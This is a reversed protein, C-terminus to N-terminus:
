GLLFRLVTPTECSLNQVFILSLSTVSATNTYLSSCALLSVRSATAQQALYLDEKLTGTRTKCLFKHVSRINRMSVYHLDFLPRHTARASERHFETLPLSLSNAPTAFCQVSTAPGPLSVGPELPGLSCTAKGQRITAGQRGM